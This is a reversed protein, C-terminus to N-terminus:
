EPRRGSGVAWQGSGVTKLWEVTGDRSGNDVFILEYPESTHREISEVCLKTFELQNHTVLIISTHDNM